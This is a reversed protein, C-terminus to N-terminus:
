MLQAQNVGAGFQMTVSEDDDDGGVGGPLGPGGPLRPHPYLGKAVARDADAPRPSDGSDRAGGPLGSVMTLPVPLRGGGGGTLPTFWDLRYNTSSMAPASDALLLLAVLTLLIATREDCM